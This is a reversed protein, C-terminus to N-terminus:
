LDNQEDDKGGIMELLITRQNLDPNDLVREMLENKIKGVEKGAPINLAGMIDNGNIALDVLKTPPKEALVSELVVFCSEIFENVLGINRGSGILDAGRFTILKKLRDEGHRSILKRISRAHDSWNILEMHYLILYCVEDITDNDYRLRTLIERAMEASVEEHRYFHVNGAEDITKCRPKGIDHLLGVLRFVLDRPTASVTRLIHGYVDATHFKNQGVGYCAVLEPLIHRILFSKHLLRIGEVPDNSLLIKNLEEQIREASINKLLDANNQIASFTGNTIFFDLQVSFRIARMMRLPDEKFRDEPNGVAKIIKARLDDATGALKVLGNKPNWAFANITFDRRKLDEAISDTFSVSDPHRYDSYQGDSRFRAVQVEIDYISVLVVGFSAGIVKCGPFLAELVGLPANTAVDWDKPSRDLLLDRVAGGVLFAKYKVNLRSIIELVGFPIKKADIM